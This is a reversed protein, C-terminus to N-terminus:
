VGGPRPCEVSALLPAMPALESTYPASCGKPLRSLNPATVVAAARSLSDEDVDAVGIFECVRRLERPPDSQLADSDVVLVSLGALGRASNFARIQGVVGAAVDAVSPLVVASANEITPEMIAEVIADAPDRVVVVARLGPVIRAMAALHEINHPHADITVGSSQHGIQSFYNERVQSLASDSMMAIMRPYVTSGLPQGPIDGGLGVVTSRGDTVRVSGIQRLADALIEPRAGMMGTVVCPAGSAAAGSTWLGRESPAPFSALRDLMMLYRRSRAFPPRGQPALAQRAKLATDLAGAHSGADFQLRALDFMVGAMGFRDHAIRPLSQQLREIAEGRRGEAADHRALLRVAIPAPTGSDVSEQAVVRAEDEAGTRLLMSVLGGHFRPDRGLWARYHERAEDLRGLEVLCEGLDVAAETMRPKIELARRLPGEAEAARGIRLMARGKLGQVEASRPRLDGAEMLADAAESFRGLDLSLSGIMAIADINSPNMERVKSFGALAREHGGAQSYAYSLHLLIESSSPEMQAARQLTDIAERLRGTKGCIVGLLHVAGVHTPLESVIERCIKEAAADDGQQFHHTALQWDEHALDFPEMSAM